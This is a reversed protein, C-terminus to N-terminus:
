ARLPVVNQGPEIGACYDAWVEMMERRREVMTQRDYARKVTTGVSHALAHEVMESPFGVRNLYTSFTARFGHLTVDPRLKKLERTLTSESIAGSAGGAFVFDNQRIGAMRNIVTMMASSLPVEHPVKKGRRGKMRDAPVTWIREDLNFEKWQALRVENLRLGSLILFETTHCAIHSHSRLEAVLAPIDRYDLAEHPKSEAAAPLLANLYKLKAPNEGTYWGNGIAHDLVAGIRVQLDKSLKPKTSRLPTLLKALHEIKIQGVPLKGLVPIVHMRM